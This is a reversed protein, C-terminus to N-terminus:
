QCEITERNYVETVQLHGLAPTSVTTLIVIDLLNLQTKVWVGREITNGSEVSHRLQLDWVGNSETRHGHATARILKYLYKLIFGYAVSLLRLTIILPIYLPHPPTM